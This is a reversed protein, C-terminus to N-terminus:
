NRYKQFTIRPWVEQCKEEGEKWEEEKQSANRHQILARYQSILVIYFSIILNNGIIEKEWQKKLFISSVMKNDVIVTVDNGRYLIKLTDRSKVYSQFSPPAWSLWTAFFKTHVGFHGRCSRPHNMEPHFSSSNYKIM